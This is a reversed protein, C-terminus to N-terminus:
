AMGSGAGVIVGDGVGEGVGSGVSLGAGVIGVMGSNGAHVIRSSAAANRKETAIKNRFLWRCFDQTFLTKM